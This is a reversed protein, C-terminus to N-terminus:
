ASLATGPVPFGSALEIVESRIGALRQNDEPADIIRAIMDAVMVCEAEKFGRTTMAPTGIRLGSAQTPPRTDGPITNRNASIGVTDLIREAKRGSIGKSGVDVLFLHNDTGGSVIEYGREQMAGAMARANAIIQRAYSKFSPQLAEHFSVAKGAIVHMLPGGQMGPFVTKDVGKGFQEGSLILGGRPGRLTKHTTTTTIHAHGVSTPHEGTAVLGAIHAIDAFLYAGVDDAIERFRKFDIVRSYASAGTIIGRPRVERAQRHIADYDFLGTERDVGYLHADFFRGSFNVKAGHTLHGGESLNLGLITDGPEMLSFYAALNANAGSHAQVNVHESGFLAEAREIALEEAIDVFECGGYYRKGPQGEAYKNTLVSGVAAMVAESAYNESAILEIGERQRREERAIAAAIEPDFATLLESATM